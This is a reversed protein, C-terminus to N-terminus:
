KRIVPMTAIGKDTFVKAFYTGTALASVSVEAVAANVNVVDVLQGYLNYLEVKEITVNEGEAGIFVRSDAPNPWVSLNDRLTYDAIGTPDYDHVAIASNVMGDKMAVAKLTYHMNLPLPFQGTYLLSSEDPDTGDITYYISAGETACTLIIRYFEGDKFWDFVPTAVTDLIVVPHIDIDNNDRPYIQYGNSTSYSVFGTVDAIDGANIGMDVTNFRDRISMTDGNQVFSVSDIFQVDNLRVLRSEYVNAYQSKVNSVTAVTPSVTVPTGTAANANHSPILEVMGNYLQYSGFIGGEIVDGENYETTIVTANDYILLAASNDEVFMYNGSRFVFTVDSMIQQASTSANAKFAAINTVQEPFSITVSSVFSPTMNAKWAKAKITTNTNVTFPTSYVTSTETPVSGDTTYRIVADAESCTITVTQPEYYFGSNPTIVPAIVTTPTVNPVGFVVVSDIVLRSTATPATEPLVITFKLRVYDYTGTEDVLYDFTQASSSVDFIEGSTYTTGGDISHSVNVKLNNTSTAVFTVHTVNRLEFNTFTYGINSTASTYWRMQMSQAGLIHNTTAPTGYYTGWQQDAPGTYNVTTNNYVNSATFGEGDEFGVMYIITDGVSPEIVTYTETVVNSNEWDAKMAIAKVTYTGPINLVIPASYLDSTATPETGDTTYRIAADAVACTMTVTVLTDNDTDSTIVPAPLQATATLAITESLTDSAVTITGTAPETGDFTVTVTTNSNPNTITAPTLTFHSDSCTMTVANDLHAGSVTFTQSLQTSTFNLATVDVTLVPEYVVTYVATATESAFWDTKFAVAKVTTTVTLTIPASYADSTETPVTGDTTYRIVAGETACAISFTVSDAYTGAVPAFVPTAVTPATITVDLTAVDSSQWNAKVAVAKVTSTTTVEFPATYLTSADTPVTGDTTYYIAADNGATMTVTANFYFTNDGPAEDGAATIAPADLVPMTVTFTTTATVAPTLAAQNMDVLSCTITHTGSPLPSLTAALLMNLDTQDLYVPNTFGIATLLPSEVKLYGDTGLTFNQIDIGIPLTDLSSFDSGNAPATITLSPLLVPAQSSLDSNYRPYIQISDSHIAAFGTVNVTAGAALTTDIGFRNYLTLTETGQTFTTTSGSFGNPFTVNEITILQADYDDYDVILDSINVVVPAVSGTNSTAPDPAVTSTMEIQDSYVSKKGTLNSIQDGENFGTFANSGYILLGASADKVYTYAGSGFVYTVDNSITFLQTTSTQLKFEIINALSTPFTYTATAVLSNNYGAATAMAKVTTTQSITIPSTYITSTETPTTGDTTYYITANNTTTSITLDFPSNYTGAPTSFTPQAATQAGGSQTITINDLFFRGHSAAAGEFKIHSSSTGGTLVVTYHGYTGYSGSNDLGNVVYVVDDLYVKIFTSDHYWAIADFELTCNGNDGSLDIVPTQIWGLASTTGLKIKGTNRYVKNGTWGPLSTYTDLSSSIDSGGVSDTIASFDESFVVTQAFGVVAFLIMCLTIISCLISTRKM